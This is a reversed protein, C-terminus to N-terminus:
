ARPPRELSGALLRGTDHALAVVPPEAPAQARLAPSGAAVALPSHCLDCTSCLHTLTTTVDSSAAVATEASGADDSMSTSGGHCPLASAAVPVVMSAPDATMAVAAWGRLPLLALMFLVIWVRRM